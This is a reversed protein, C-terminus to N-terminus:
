SRHLIGPDPKSLDSNALESGPCIQNHSLFLLGILLHTSITDEMVQFRTCGYMKGKAGGVFTVGRIDKEHRLVTLPSTVAM